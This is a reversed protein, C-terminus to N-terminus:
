VEKQRSDTEETPISSKPGRHLYDKGTIKEFLALVSYYLAGILFFAATGGLMKALQWCDRKNSCVFDYCEKTRRFM